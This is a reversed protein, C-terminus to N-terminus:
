GALTFVEDLEYVAVGPKAAAAANVMAQAVIRGHIPRYKKFLGVANFFKLVREATAEAPRMNKRRGALLGPRLFAIGNFRMRRVDRELEGKIQTYFLRSKPDAGPASVLVYFPVGNASAAEAFYYQYSYDIKRQEVQSGAEKITTGLTSFLVDGRVLAQWSEPMDFDIIHEEIKDHQVGCARRGFVRIKGFRPDALLLQLLQSGVLGTAGILNATKM